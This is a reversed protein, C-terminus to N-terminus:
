NRHPPSSSSSPLFLLPPLATSPSSPRYFLPLPPAISSLFLCPALALLQQM